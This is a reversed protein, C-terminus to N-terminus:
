CIGLLQEAFVFSIAMCIGPWSRALVLGSSLLYWAFVFCTGLLPWAFLSCRFFLNLTSISGRGLPSETAFRDEGEPPSTDGLPSAAFQAFLGAFVM